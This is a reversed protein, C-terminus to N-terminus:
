LNIASPRTRFSSLDFTSVNPSYLKVFACCVNDEVVKPFKRESLFRLAFAKVPSLADSVRAIIIHELDASKRVEMIKELDDPHDPRPGDQSLYLKRPRARRVAEFVKSFTDSRVFFILLVATKVSYEDM